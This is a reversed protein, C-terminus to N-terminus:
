NKATQINEMIELEEKLDALRVIMDHKAFRDADPNERLWEETEAILQKIKEM